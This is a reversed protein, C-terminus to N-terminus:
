MFYIYIAWGRSFNKIMSNWISKFVINCNIGVFTSEYLTSIYVLINLWCVWDIYILKSLQGDILNQYINSTTRLVRGITSQAYNKKLKMETLPIWVLAFM